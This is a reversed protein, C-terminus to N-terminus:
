GSGKTFSAASFVESQGLIGLMKNGVASETM